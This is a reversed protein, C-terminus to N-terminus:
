DYKRKFFWGDNRHPSISFGVYFNFYDELLLNNETTGRKGFEFGLNLSSLSASQILPIGFGFSIGYQQLQTNNLQLYTNSYRFGLRYNIIQWLRIEDKYSENVYPTFQLGIAASRSDRLNDTVSESGFEEAYSGWDQLEFQGSVVLRRFASGILPKNFTLAFGYGLRLPISITGSTTDVYNVTDVLNETLTNGFTYALMEQRASLKSPLGATAGISIWNNKSIKGKYLIGGDIIFDSVITNYVVKSHLIGIGSPYIATSNREMNGFVFSANIGASLKHFPKNIIKVGTGLYLRNIGGSGNYNYTVEGISSEEVKVSMNYGVSSFPMIGFSIGTRKSVPFGLAINRLGVANYREEDNASSAKIFQGAIGIDFIPKHEQIFSYSAPNTYNLFNSDALAIGASAMGAYPAFIGSNIDGLAYRSYPSSVNQQAFATQSLLILTFIRFLLNRM